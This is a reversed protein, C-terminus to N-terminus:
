YQQVTCKLVSSPWPVRFRSTRVFIHGNLQSHIPVKVTWESHSSRCCNLVINATPLNLPNEIFYLTNALM